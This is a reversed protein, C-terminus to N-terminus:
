GGDFQHAYWILFRDASTLVEQRIYDGSGGRLASVVDAHRPLRLDELGVLHASAAEAIADYGSAHMNQARLLLRCALAVHKYVGKVDPEAACVLRRLTVIVLPLDAEGAMLLEATPIRPVSLDASRRLVPAAGEGIQHVAFTVRPQLRHAGLEGPTLLTLGLRVKGQATLIRDLDLALTAVRPHGEHEAVVLMDLDSWDATWEGSAASGTPAVLHTKAADAVGDTFAGVATAIADPLGLANASALRPPVSQDDGAIRRLHGYLAFLSGGNDVVHDAVSAVGQGGRGLKIEDKMRVAEASMGSRTVRIDFPVDVYVIRLRNGLIDKAAAILTDSHVSEITFRRAEVHADAFVSLEGVILEAQCRADLMYPDGVGARAAASELLFGMKFRYSGTAYRLYEASSSKGSESLGGFAIVVGINPSVLRPAAMIRRKGYIKLKQSRPLRRRGEIVEAVLEDLADNLQRMQSHLVPMRDGRDSATQETHLMRLTLVSLRDLVSGFTETHIPAASSSVVSAGLAILAEDIRDILQNRRHNLRDIRRKTEGLIESSVSHDRAEDEADWLECNTHHLGALASSFRERDKVSLEELAAALAAPIEWEGSM